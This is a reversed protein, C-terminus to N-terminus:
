RRAWSTPFGTLTRDWLEKRDFARATKWQTSQLSMTSAGGEQARAAAAHLDAIEAELEEAHAIQEEASGEGRAVAAKALPAGGRGGGQGRRRRAAGHRRGVRAADREGGCCAAAPWPATAPRRRRGCGARWPAEAAACGHLGHVHGFTFGGILGLLLCLACLVINNGAPPPPRARSPAM